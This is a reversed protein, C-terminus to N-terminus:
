VYFADADTRGLRLPYLCPVVVIATLAYLISGLIEVWSWRSVAWVM